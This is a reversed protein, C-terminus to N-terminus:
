DNNSAETTKKLAHFMLFETLEQLQNQNRKPLNSSLGHVLNITDVPNKLTERPKFHSPIQLSFAGLSFGHHKRQEADEFACWQAVGDPIRMTTYTDKIYDLGKSTIHYNGPIRFGLFGHNVLRNLESNVTHQLMKVGHAITRANIRTRHRLMFQFIEREASFETNEDEILRYMSVDGDRWRKLEFSDGIEQLANLLETSEIHSLGALATRSIGIPHRRLIDLVETADPSLM